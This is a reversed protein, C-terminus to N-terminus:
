CPPQLRRMVRARLDPAPPTARITIRDLRRESAGAANGSRIRPDAFSWRPGAAVMRLANAVRTRRYVPSAPRPPPRALTHRVITAIMDM